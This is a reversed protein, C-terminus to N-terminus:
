QLVLKGYSVNKTSSVISYSYIGAPYDGREFIWSSCPQIETETIKKGLVDYLTFVASANLNNKFDFEARDIVPNPFVTVGNEADPSDIGSLSGYEWWDNYNTGSTGTGGYARNGITMCVFYHRAQGTFDSVQVWQTTVPNYAYTEPYEQGFDSGTVVYVWGNYYFCGSGCRATGPFPSLFNWTNALPDFVTWNNDLGVGIYAKNNAVAEVDSYGTIPPPAKQTWSNNGPNYEWCDQNYDGLAVYGKGNISFSVAGSRAGGPCPAIPIWNNMTPDYKWFDNWDQSTTSGCGVYAYNGISFATAHFRDGGGFDARQMWSDTGPDYEWWDKYLIAGQNNNIHGLGIYGRQGVACGCARHRGIAPISTKQIWVYQNQAQLEFASFLLILISLIKRTRKMLNKKMKNSFLKELM